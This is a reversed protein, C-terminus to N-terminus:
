KKKPPTTSQGKVDAKDRDNHFNRDLQEHSQRGGSGGHNQVNHDLYDDKSMDHPFATKQNEKLPKNPM